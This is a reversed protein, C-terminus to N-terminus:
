IGELTSQREAEEQTGATRLLRENIEMAHKSKDILDQDAFEIVQTYMLAAPVAFMTYVDPQVDRPEADLKYRAQKFLEMLEKEVAAGLKKLEDPSFRVEGSTKGPPAPSAQPSPSPTPGGTPAPGGGQPAAPPGATPGPTPGPGNLLNAVRNEGM